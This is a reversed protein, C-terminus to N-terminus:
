QDSKPSPANQDVEEDSKHLESIRNSLALAQMKLDSKSCKKISEVDLSKTPNPKDAKSKVSSTKSTAQKVEKTGSGSVKNPDLAPTQSMSIPTVPISNVIPFEKKVQGIIREHNFKDWWKTFIQRTVMDTQGHNIISAKVNTGPLEFTESYQPTVINYQWKVIWHVKYKSIFALAM